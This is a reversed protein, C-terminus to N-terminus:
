ATLEQLERAAPLAHARQDPLAALVKSGVRKVATTRYTEPIATLSTLAHDLGGSVDGSHILTTAQFLKLKTRDRRWNAYGSLARDQAATAEPAGLTTYVSSEALYVLREPCGWMSEGDPTVSAPLKAFTERMEGLARRAGSGDGREALAYARNKHTELLGRGPSEGAIDRAEDAIALTRSLPRDSHFTNLSERARVWTRLDRDGSADAAQRATRWWRWATGFEGLGHWSDAMFASMRASAVLLDSRISPASTRDLLRKVAALDVALDPILQEPSNNVCRFGYDWATAEWDEPAVDADDRVSAEIMTRLTEAAGLPLAATAGISTLLQIVARREMDDDQDSSISNEGDFTCEAEIKRVTADLAALQHGAGLIQDIRAIADAPARREGREWKSLQSYDVFAQAALERLDMGCVDHRWHRLAAGLLHWSSQRPDIPEAQRPM